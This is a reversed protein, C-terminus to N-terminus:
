PCRMRVSFNGGETTTTLRDGAQSLEYALRERWSEGEGTFGAKVIISRPAASTIGEVTAVSEYYEIRDAAIELQGESAPVGCEEVAFNWAGLFGSPIAELIRTEGAGVLGNSQSVNTADDSVAAEDAPERSCGFMALAAIIITLRTSRM